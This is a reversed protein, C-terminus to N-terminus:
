YSGPVSTGPGPTEVNEFSLRLYTIKLRICNLVRRGRNNDIQNTFLGVGWRLSHFHNTAWELRKKAQTPYMELNGPIM